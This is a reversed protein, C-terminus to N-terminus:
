RLLRAPPVGEHNALGELLEWARDDDLDDQWRTRALAHAVLRADQATWETPRRSM